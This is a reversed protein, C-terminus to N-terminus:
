GWHEPEACGACLLLTTRMVCFFLILKKQVTPNHLDKNKLNPPFPACKSQRREWFVQNLKIIAQLVPSVATNLTARSLLVTVWPCLCSASFISRAQCQSCQLTKASVQIWTPTSNKKGSSFSKLSLSLLHMCTQVLHESMVLLLLAENGSHVKHYIKM